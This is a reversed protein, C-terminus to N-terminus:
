FRDHQCLYNGFNYIHKCIFREYIFGQSAKSFLKWSAPISFQYDGVKATNLTDEPDNRMLKGIKSSDLEEAKISNLITNLEM